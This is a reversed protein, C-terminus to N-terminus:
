KEGRAKAIASMADTYLECQMLEPDYIDGIIRHSSRDMELYQELAELTEQGSLMVRARAQAQELTLDMDGIKIFYGSNMKNNQNLIGYVAPNETPM